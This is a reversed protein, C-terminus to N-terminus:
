ENGVSIPIKITGGFANLTGLEVPEVSIPKDSGIYLVFGSDSPRATKAWVGDALMFIGNEDKKKAFSDALELDGFKVMIRYKGIAGDYDIMGDGIYEGEDEPVTRISYAGLPLLYTIRLVMTDENKQNLSIRTVVGQNYKLAYPVISVSAIIAVMLVLGVGILLAKKKTM